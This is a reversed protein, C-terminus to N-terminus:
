AYSASNAQAYLLNAIQEFNPRDLNKRLQKRFDCDGVNSTGTYFYFKVYFLWELDNLTM